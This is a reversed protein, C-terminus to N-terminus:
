WRAITSLWSCKQIMDNESHQIGAFPSCLYSFRVDTLHINFKIRLGNFQFNDTATQQKKFTHKCNKNSDTSELKIKM